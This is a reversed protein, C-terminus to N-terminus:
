QFAYSPISDRKLMGNQECEMQMMEKISGTIYQAMDEIDIEHTDAIEIAAELITLDNEKAYSIIEQKLENPTMTM